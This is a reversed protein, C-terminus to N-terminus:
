WQRLKHGKLAYFLIFIYCPIMVWYAMQPNESVSSFHGYALPLLAGGAIGMILLASGTGTYKGLGELALPWIAPWVLANAFGLLALFMVTNPVTPIGAWGFLVGSILDSSPSAFMVGATFVLGLLASMLLAREQSLYKPIAVVGLIYGLVMFSMTYSTLSGFHAVGLSRGYLGITDGAIVEVGVYMFLALAGLIVQPFALIGLKDEVQEAEEELTLEALPSLKVFAALGLLAIAMYIYPPVLRSSLEALRTARESETLSALVADDFQDMGTLIWATFLIPVVIGAAKNVLGMVSIRMAASERPGICVIYPNSATQLLTLGTGLIFLAALFLAYHSTQAAPIFLLAGVAMVVLGIVMGSKYGTKKLIMASPLAMFTYAIYFAFTVFLAQFENLECVIKLFPILSGNLWTVFGFIFFLIGIILMPVFTSEQKQSVVASSSM